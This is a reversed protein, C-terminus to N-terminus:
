IRLCTPALRKGVPNFAMDQRQLEKATRWGQQNGVIGLYRDDLGAVEIGLDVPRIAPHGGM